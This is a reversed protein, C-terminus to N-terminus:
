RLSEAPLDKASGLCGQGRLGKMEQGSKLSLQSSFAAPCPFFLYFLIGLAPGGEEHERPVGLM